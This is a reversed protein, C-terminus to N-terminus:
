IRVGQSVFVGGNCELSMNYRSGHGAVSFACFTMLSDMLTSLTGHGGLAQLMVKLTVRSLYTCHPAGAPKSMCCNYASRLTTCIHKRTTLSLFSFICDPTSHGRQFHQLKSTWGPIDILIPNEGCEEPDFINTGSTRM